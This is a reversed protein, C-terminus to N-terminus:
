TNEAPLNEHNVSSSYTQGATQSMYVHGHAEGAISCLLFVAASLNFSKSQEFELIAMGFYKSELLKLCMNTRNFLGSVATRAVKM